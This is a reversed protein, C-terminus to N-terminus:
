IFKTVFITDTSYIKVYVKKSEKKTNVTTSTHRTKIVLLTKDNENSSRVAREKSYPNILFGVAKQLLQTVIAKELERSQIALEHLPASWDYSVENLTHRKYGAVYM